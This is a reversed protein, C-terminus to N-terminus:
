FFFFFFHKLCTEGEIFQLSCVYSVMLSLILNRKRMYDKVVRDGSANVKRTGSLVYTSFLFM